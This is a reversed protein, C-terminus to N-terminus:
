HLKAAEPQDMGRLIRRAELPYAWVAIICYALITGGVAGILGIKPVLIIMLILSLAATGLGYITLRQLRGTGNILMVHPETWAWVLQMAAMCIALAMPPVLDAGAWLRVIPGVFIALAAACLGTLLGVGMLTYTLTRRMWGVDRRAYAEGYAPWLPVLVWTQLLGVYSFLRWSTGYIAVQEPGLVRAIVFPATQQIMMAALQAVLFMGGVSLLQGYHSRRVHRLGPALWPRHYGFLFGASVALVLQRVGFVAMVLLPLGGKLRTVILLAVLSAASAAVNWYQAYYGEQYGSYVKNTISLPFGLAFVVFTLSIALPLEARAEISKANLFRWWPLTQGSWAGLVGIGVGLLVLLWFASATYEQAKERLGQGHAHALQNLLSNGIGLDTLTLWTLITGIMIWLGYRETGLYRITLPVSLFGVLSTLATSLASSATSRAARVYRSRSLSAPNGASIARSGLLAERAVSLLVQIGNLLRVRM